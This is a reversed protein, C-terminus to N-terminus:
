SSIRRRAPAIGTEDRLHPIIVLLSASRNHLLKRPSLSGGLSGSSKAKATKWSHAQPQRPDNRGDLYLEDLALHMLHVIQPKNKEGLLNM